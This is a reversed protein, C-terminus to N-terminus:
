QYDEEYVVKAKNFDETEYIWRGVVDGIGDTNGHHFKYGYDALKKFAEEKSSAIVEFQKVAEIEITYTKEM